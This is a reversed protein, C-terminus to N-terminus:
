VYLRRARVSGPEIGAQRMEDYVRLLQQEIAAMSQPDIPEGNDDVVRGGLAQALAGASRTMQTLGRAAAPAVAIDFELSLRMMSPDAQLVYLPDGQEDNCVWRQAGTATFGAQQAANRLQPGTWAAGGSAVTLGIKIDFRACLRDLEQAQAVLRATDPADVDADLTTAVQRVVQVFRAVEAEDIPGHRDAMQISALADTYYGFRDPLVWQQHRGDWVVFHVPLKWRAHGLIAAADIVSVGDVARACRIELSCDLLPDELWDPHLPASPIALAESSVRAARPAGEDRDEGDGDGEGARDSEQSRDSGDSEHGDDPAGSGAAEGRGRAEDRDDPYPGRAAPRGLGPDLGAPPRVAGGRDGGPLPLAAGRAAGGAPVPANWAAVPGAFDQRPLLPDGVDGQLRERLRRLVRREEWKGSVYLALLLIVAVGLLALQLESLPIAGM